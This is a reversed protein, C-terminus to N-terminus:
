CNGLLASSAPRKMSPLLITVTTGAGPSSEITIHGSSREVFKRVMALGIGTGEPRTTFFLDFVKACTAPPIGAGQDIVRVCLQPGSGNNPPGFEGVVQVLRGPPSHHAANTILEALSQAFQEADFWWAHANTRDEIALSVGRTKLIPSAQAQAAAVLEHFQVEQPRLELPKSFEFLRSIRQSMRDAQRSMEHALSELDSSGGAQREALQASIKLAALPNKLGHAVHACLEGLASLERARLLAAQHHALGDAMTDICRALQALEDRGRLPVRHDLRGQGITEASSKLVEIPAVLWRRITIVHIFLLLVTIVAAVAITAQALLSTRATESVSQYQTVDYYDRLERLDEAAKRVWDALAHADSASAETMAAVCHHVDEWLTRERPDTALRIQVQIDDLVGGPSDPAVSPEPMGTTALRQYLYTRVDAAFQSQERMWAYERTEQANKKVSWWSLVGTALSVTMLTILAVDLKRRITM